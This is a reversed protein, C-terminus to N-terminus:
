RNTAIFRGQSIKGEDALQEIFTMEKGLTQMLEMDRDAQTRREQM